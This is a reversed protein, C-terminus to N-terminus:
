WRPQNGIRHGMVEATDSVVVFASPDVRRVIQKLTGLELFNVVTYLVKQEQGSYGGEGQLITVGRHIENLIAESIEQWQPSIIIIAKRQSLGMVVLNVVQSTVYLYILTYLADEVSFFFAAAALVVANFSLTTTGLRVSFRQYLIVALIDTGGGSGLSKLIIGSGTGLILGALIAALLPERVPIVGLNVWAVAATFILTGAVSYFFFRRSIFFWGALFLPVNMAAYVLAVSLYPALYHVVLALGTVGGSVFRHPILIGHLGVAAIASGVCLLLLNWAVESALQVGKRELAGKM